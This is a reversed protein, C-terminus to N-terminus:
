SPLSYRGGAEVLLGDALLSALARDRQTDDPWVADLRSRPVRTEDTDRLVDLLLGRVQRDTGSFRQPKKRPGDYEPKGAAVWRCEGAIPCDDCRPSRATCVLAGFEMLAISVAVAEHPEEPLLAEVASLDRRASPPGAEAVGHVARALVRRVNTDVVPVRRGYAFCAVARATYDGIGPLELLQAVDSPLRGDHDAVVAQACQQLRLARRPYGLKGWMKLVEGAPAVALEAPGPWKELWAHWAPEVRAIPTQQSMVECVLVAWASTDPRRWPLDRGESAFWSVLASTDLPSSPTTM